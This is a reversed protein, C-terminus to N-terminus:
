SNVYCLLLTIFWEHLYISLYVRMYPKKIYKLTAISNYLLSSLYELMFTALNGRIAM